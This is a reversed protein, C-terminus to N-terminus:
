DLYRYELPLFKEPKHFDPSDAGITGETRLNAVSLFNRPKKGLCACVNAHITSGIDIQLDEKSIILCIFNLVKVVHASQKQSGREERKRPAFFSATWWAGTLSLNFERYRMSKEDRLFLEYVDSEWLGEIFDGVKISPKSLQEERLQEESGLVAFYLSSPDIALIFNARCNTPLGEWNRDLVQLPIRTIEAPSLIAKSKYLILM